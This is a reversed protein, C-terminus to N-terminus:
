EENEEETFYATDKRKRGVFFFIVAMIMFLLAVVQSVPIATKGVTCLILQDTRMGEIIFRGFGYLFAYLLFVEGDVKKKRRVLMLIVFITLCLMSEYLFTPQVQVYSLGSDPTVVTVSSAYKVNIADAPIRMALLSDSNGGFAERNFFNGWRGLCQGLALGPVLTDLIMGFSQKRVRSFIFLTLIGALVGGYIALGGHWIYFISKLNDKFSDWEFIVYYIRAGLVAPIVTVLFADLYLETNQNTKKAERNALLLAILFAAGIIIAYLKIDRGFITLVSPLDSFYLGLNPFAIDKVNDM